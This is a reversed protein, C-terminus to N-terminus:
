RLWQQGLNINGYPTVLGCHTLYLARHIIGCGDMLELTKPHTSFKHKSLQFEHGCEGFQGILDFYIIGKVLWATALQASRLSHVLAICLWPSRQPCIASKWCLKSLILHSYKCKLHPNFVFVCKSHTRQCQDENQWIFKRMFILTLSALCM